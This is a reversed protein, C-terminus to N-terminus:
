KKKRTRKVKPKISQSVVASKSQFVGVQRFTTVMADISSSVLTMLFIKIYKGIIIQMFSPVMPIDVVIFVSDYFKSLYDM